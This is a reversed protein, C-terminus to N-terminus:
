IILNFYVKFNGAQPLLFTIPLRIYPPVVVVILSYGQFTAIILFSPIGTLPPDIIPVLHTKVAASCRRLYFFM